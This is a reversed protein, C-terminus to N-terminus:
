AKKHKKTHWYFPVNWASHIAWDTCYKSYLIWSSRPEIGLVWSYEPITESTIESIYLCLCFSQSVPQSGLRSLNTLKWNLSLYQRLFWPSFGNLLVGLTSRPAGRTNRHICLFCVFVCGSVCGYLVFYCKLCWDFLLIKVWVQQILNQTYTIIVFCTLLLTQM